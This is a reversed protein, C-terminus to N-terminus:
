LTQLEEDGTYVVIKKDINKINIRMKELKM